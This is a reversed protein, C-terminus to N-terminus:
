QPIHKDLQPLLPGLFELARRQGSEVDENRGLLTIVRVLAGDTRNLRIADAVLYFKAWYESAVSRGHSEYWYLVIQRELGKAIIYRNIHMDARGPRPVRIRASEVPVWGAGPLCNQPSHITDGTRQSPFYAIFFDMTERKEPRRYLRLLFEGAGLVRRVEPEINIEQATWGAVQPPFQDLPLRLPLVEPMSRSHLFLGTSALLFVVLFFQLRSVRRSSASSITATSSPTM